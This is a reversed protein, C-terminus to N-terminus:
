VSTSFLREIGTAEPNDVLTKSTDFVSSNGVLEPFAEMISTVFVKFIGTFESVVRLSTLFVGECNWDHGCFRVFYFISIRTTKGGLEASSFTKFTVFERDNGSFKALGEVIM